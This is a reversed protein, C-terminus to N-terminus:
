MVIVVGNCSVAAVVAKHWVVDQVAPRPSWQLWQVPKRGDISERQWGHDAVGIRIPKTDKFTGGGGGATRSAHLVNYASM